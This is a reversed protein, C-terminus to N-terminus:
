GRDGAARRDPRDGRMMEPGLLAAQWSAALSDRGFLGTYTPVGANLLWADSSTELDVNRLAWLDDAARRFTTALLPHPCALDIRFRQAEGELAPPSMPQRWVGDVLSEFQLALPWTGGAELHVPLELRGRDGVTRAPTGRGAGADRARAAPDGRPGPLPVDAPRRQLGLHHRHNRDAPPAGRGGARRRFGRGARAGGGWGLPGHADNRLRLEEHMGSGVRRTLLLSLQDQPLKPGTPAGGPLRVQMVSMWWDSAVSTAYPREPATGGVTLVHRSLIRTDYDYLGELREGDISGDERTVLM